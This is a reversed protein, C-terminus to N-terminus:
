ITAEGVVIQASRYLLAKQDTTLNQQDIRKMIGTTFSDCTIDRYAPDLLVVDLSFEQRSAVAFPLSCIVKQADSVKPNRLLNLARKSALHLAYKPALIRMNRTPFLEPYHELMYDSHTNVYEDTPKIINKGVLSRSIKAQLWENSNPFAMVCLSIIETLPNM